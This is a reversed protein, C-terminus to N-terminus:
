SIPQVRSAFDYDVLHTECGNNDAKEKIATLRKIDNPTHPVLLKGCRLLPLSNADIYEELANRGQFCLKSKFSGPSYYLGAHLVGSNRISTGKSPISYSDYIDIHIYKDSQLLQRSLALGVVGSGIVAIKM